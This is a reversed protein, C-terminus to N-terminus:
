WKERLEPWSWCNYDNNRIFELWEDSANINSNTQPAPSSASAAELQAIKKLRRIEIAHERENLPDETPWPLSLRPDVYQPPWTSEEADHTETFNDNSYNSDEEIHEGTDDEIYEEMQGETLYYTYNETDLVTETNFDTVPPTSPEEPKVSSEGHSPREYTLSLYKRTQPKRRLIGGVYTVLSHMFKWVRRFSFDTGSDTSLLYFVWEVRETMINWKNGADPGWYHMGIGSDMYGVLWNEWEEKGKSSGRLGIINKPKMMDNMVGKWLRNMDEDSLGCQTQLGFITPFKRQPRM